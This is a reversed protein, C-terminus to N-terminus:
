RVAKVRTPRKYERYRWGVAGALMGLGRMATRLGRAQDRPRRLGLGALARGGGVAVRVGGQAFLAVRVVLREPAAEALAVSTLGWSNGNSLARMTVWRRTTRQAPVVDTVIAEACWVMQEGHRRLQRTFLMDEGGTLGFAPDFRLRLRRVVELDLLLNNTAAVDIRTGSPLRRRVFFAGADIWDDPPVDFASVVPGVVAAPRDREFQGLLSRLWTASPREDDDLFVLLRSTALDLVRNRAAAINAEPEHGYRVPVPSTEAFARVAAEAGRDPDNDVILVDVDYGDPRSTAQQVLAPLLEALDGPRRFTLAALTVGVPTSTM